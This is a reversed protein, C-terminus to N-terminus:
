FLNLEEETQKANKEDLKQSKYFEHYIEFQKKDRAFVAQEFQKWLARTKKSWSMDKKEM